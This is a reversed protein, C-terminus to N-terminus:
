FRPVDSEYTQHRVRINRMQEVDIPLRNRFAEAAHHAVEAIYQEFHAGPTCVLLYRTPALGDVRYTHLAGPPVFAVDGPRMTREQQDYLVTFEGELCVFTEAHTRHWHLPPGGFPANFLFETLSQAGGSEETTVLIRVELQMAEFRHVLVEDHARVVPTLQPDPM